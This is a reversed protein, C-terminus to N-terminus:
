ELRFAFVGGARTVVLVTSGSLAPAAIVPSGDTPLRLVPQGSDRALFHVQGELDGFVVTKGLAVPGSLGRYLLRESTWAVDGNTIRWATIRGSADAGYVFQDDAGVNSTGGVNKSWSLTGREADVCGVASQFARACVTDGHRAAPGVLDALREVENTGRPSALVVEWRVNGRLPDLGVLRPGQGVLLTDKFPSVVGPQALTLADGPRQFTWLKRGDRVDYAHVVRDVGMVFVREGAVLPPTTVRAKLADRWLVRGAELTLLENDRTVVSTYRGDSGASSGLKEGADARWLERGTDAALAVVTGDAAALTFAGGSTSVIIPAMVGDLRTSWVQRGAVQPSLPELPTPKPKDPGSACAVLLTIAALSVSIALARSRAGMM